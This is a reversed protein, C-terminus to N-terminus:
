ILDDDDDDGEDDGEDGGDGDVIGATKDPPIPRSEYASELEIRTNNILDAADVGPIDDPDQNDFEGDMIRKAVEPTVRVVADEVFTLELRVEVLGDEEVWFDDENRHPTIPAAPKTAKKATPSM